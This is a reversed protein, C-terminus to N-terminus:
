ARRRDAAAVAWEEVWAAEPVGSDEPVESDERVALAAQVRPVAIAQDPRVAAPIPRRVAQLDKRPGTRPVM